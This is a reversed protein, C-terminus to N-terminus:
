SGITTATPSEISLRQEVVQNANISLNFMNQEMDISILPTETGSRLASLFPTDPQKPPSDEPQETPECNTSKVLATPLQPSSVPNSGANAPSAGSGQAKQLSDLGSMMQAEEEAAERVQRFASFTSPLRMNNGAAQIPEPVAEPTIDAPLSRIDDLHGSAASEFPTVAPSVTYETYGGPTMASRLPTPAWSRQSQSRKIDPGVRQSQNAEEWPTMPWDQRYQNYSQSAARGPDIDSASSTIRAM